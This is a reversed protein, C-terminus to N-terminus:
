AAGEVVQAGSRDYNEAAADSLYVRLLERAKLFSTETMGLLAGRLAMEACRIEMGNNKSIIEGLPNVVLNAVLLGYFTAILAVAMEVGTEAPTLGDSLSRMLNVLGLVTGVLGFAPPYKSLGKISDAIRKGRQAKQVIMQSLINKIEENSFGLSRLEFATSLVRQALDSGKEFSLVKGAQLARVAELVDMYTQNINFKSSGLAFKFKEIMEARQQWPLVMISVAVTGGLVVTCAVFDFYSSASQGLHILASAFATLALLIGLLFAV